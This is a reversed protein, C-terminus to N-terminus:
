GAAPPRKSRARLRVAARRAYLAVVAGVALALGLLWAGARVGMPAPIARWGTPTPYDFDTWYHGDAARQVSAAFLFASLLLAPAVLLAAILGAAKLPEHRLAVYSVACAALAAAGVAPLGYPTAAHITAFLMLPVLYLTLVHAGVPWTRRTFVLWAGLGLTWIALLAATGAHLGLGCLLPSVALVTGIFLGPVASRWERRARQRVLYLYRLRERRFALGCEPCKGDALGSLDYRCDECVPVFGEPDGPQTPPAACGAPPATAHQDDM